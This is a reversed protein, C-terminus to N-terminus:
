INYHKDFADLAKCARRQGFYPLFMLLIRQVESKKRVAWKWQDKWHPKQYSASKNVKTVKGYGVISVFKEMVDKDTMTMQLLPNNPGTIDTICGEGEFLGAAWAIQLDM